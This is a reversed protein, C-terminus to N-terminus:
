DERSVEVHVRLTSATGPASRFTGTVPAADAYDRGTAIKIYRDDAFQNNTPDLGYWGRGPLWIECWAHSAQAGRLHADNGNFLYGSVYRTPIQLCRCLATMVHAFDQCVGRKDVLLDRATTHVGTANPEYRWHTHLHAMIAQATAFVDTRDDRIDIALRWFEPELSVYRSGLLFDHYADPITDELDAFTTGTPAVNDPYQSQTRVRAQAEILLEDHPEAVDFHHVRNLRLDRYRRLRVSPLVRLLFFQVRQPDDSAPQVRVENQNRTVPQSYRYHTQHLVRLLM